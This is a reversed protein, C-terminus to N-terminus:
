FVLCRDEDSVGLDGCRISLRDCSVGSTPPPPSPRGTSVRDAAVGVSSTSLAGPLAGEGDDEEELFSFFRVSGSSLFFSGNGVAALWPRLPLLSLSLSRPAVSPRLSDLFSLFAAWLRPLETFTFPSFSAMTLPSVASSGGDSERAAWLLLLWWWLWWW